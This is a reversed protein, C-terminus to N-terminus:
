VEVEVGQAAEDDPDLEATEGLRGVPEAARGRRDAGLELLEFPLRARRDQALRAAAQRQRRGALRQEGVRAAQDLEVVLRDGRRAADLELAPHPDPQLLIEALRQQRLREAAEGAGMGLDPDLRPDFAVGRQDVPDIEPM